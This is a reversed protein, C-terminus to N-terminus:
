DQKVILHRIVGEELKIKQNLDKVYNGELELHYHMFNGAANKAIPYAFDIKGWDESKKVEGKFTKILKGIFEGVAKKKAATAKEPLVLTLEYM